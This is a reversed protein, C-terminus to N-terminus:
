QDRDNAETLQSIGDVIRPWAGMPLDHGMGEILMLESGPICEHTDIGHGVNVLPDAEGHIVLTPLSLRALADVRSGSATVAAIQRVTGQPHFNRDFARGAEERIRDDDIPFGSSGIVRQRKVSFEIVEERTEPPPTMLAQMAQPTAPPGGPRGTGSMISTMTKIRAPEAIAMLQVIMGGMSAGVVHAADIGLADLLGMADDAMDSLLYPADVSEGQASAAILRVIDPIGAHDFHTSLGVDRNDFRIVYHGREALAECFSENWTILQRGLGMVLLLPRAQSEGFTDYEIEIGNAKVNPM